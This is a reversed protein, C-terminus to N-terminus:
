ADVSIGVRLHDDNPKSDLLIGRVAIKDSAYSEEKLNAGEAGSVWQIIDADLLNNALGIALWKNPSLITKFIIEEAEPDLWMTLAWDTHTFTVYDKSEDAYDVQIDILQM